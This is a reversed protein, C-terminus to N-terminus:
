QSEAGSQEEAAIKAVTNYHRKPMGHMERDLRDGICEDFSAAAIAEEEGVGSDLAARVLVRVQRLYNAEWEIWQRVQEVGYIEPGHGPVLVEIDLRALRWLSAELVRGDGDGIAPVIGTVVADGGILVKDEEVYASVGDESHGPTPLFRVRKGGLDIRLEDSYTVTPWVLRAKVEAQSVEWRGAWGPIQRRMVRPTLAHAYVTGGGLPGCGLIHDGHGHTLALAELRCGRRRVFDAMAQGDEPYNGGDIALAGRQGFVLGNRGDVFDHAVSFVGPAVEEFRPAIRAM